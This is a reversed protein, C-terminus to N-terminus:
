VAIELYREGCAECMARRRRAFYLVRSGYALLEACGAHLCERHILGHARDTWACPERRILPAFGALQRHEPCYDEDPERHAACRSCVPKNCM